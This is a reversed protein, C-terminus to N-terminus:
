AKPMLLFDDYGARRAREVIEPLTLPVPGRSTVIHGRYGESELRRLAAVISRGEDHSTAIDVEVFLKPRFRRLIEAAGMLVQPESGQVDIKILSVTPWGRSAIIDDLRAVEIDIGKEALRHDAPNDINLALHARGTRDSAAARLLVVNHHYRALARSLREFNRPEPELAIVTGNPGVRRAFQTSFFGTNAGVDIVLAGRPVLKCLRQVTRGETLHKYVYYAAVFLAAGSRTSTLGSRRLMRYAGLVFAQVLTM